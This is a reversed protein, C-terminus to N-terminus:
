TLSPSTSTSSCKIKHSSKSNRMHSRSLTKAKSAHRSAPSSIPIREGTVLMPLLKTTPKPSSSMQMDEECTHCLSSFESSMTPSEMALLSYKWTVCSLAFTKIHDMLSPLPILSLEM